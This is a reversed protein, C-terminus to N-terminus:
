PACEYPVMRLSASALADVAAVANFAHRLDAYSAHFDAINKEFSTLAFNEHDWEGVQDIRPRWASRPQKAAMAAPFRV